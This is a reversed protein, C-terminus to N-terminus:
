CNICSLPGICEVAIPEQKESSKLKGDPAAAKAPATQKLAQARATCERIFHRPQGRNFDPVQHAFKKGSPTGPLSAAPHSNQQGARPPLICLPIAPGKQM